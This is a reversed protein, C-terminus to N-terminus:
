MAIDPVCDEYVIFCLHIRLQNVKLKGV